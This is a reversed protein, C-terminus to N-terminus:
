DGPVVVELPEDESKPPQIPIEGEARLSFGVSTGAIMSM